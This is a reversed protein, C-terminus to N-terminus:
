LGAKKMTLIQEVSCPPTIPTRATPPLQKAPNQIVSTNWQTPAVPKSSPAGVWYSCGAVLSLLTLSLRRRGTSIM